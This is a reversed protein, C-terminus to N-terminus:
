PVDPRADVGIDVPPDPGTELALLCFHMSVSRCWQGCEVGRIVAKVPDVYTSRTPGRGGESPEAYM